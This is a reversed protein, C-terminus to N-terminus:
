RVTVFRYPELLAQANPPIRAKIEDSIKGGEFSRRLNVEAIQIGALGRMGKETLEREGLLSTAIEGTAQAIASQLTYTYTASVAANPSDPFTVTGDVYDITGSATAVGNLYVTASAAKWFGNQARYTWGDSAYLTEATSTLEWGYAYTMEAVPEYLGLNPVVGVPYVGYVVAALSVVEVYGYTQNIFLDTANILASVQNTVKIRFDSVSKNPRAYPYVRRTGKTIQTGLLWRHQEGTMTGGTFSFPQPIQPVACYTDVIASARTLVSALEIDEIGELDAGFGMTRYRDVSLYSPM